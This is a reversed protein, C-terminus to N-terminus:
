SINALKATLYMPSIKRWNNVFNNGYFKMRFLIIIIFTIYVQITICFSEFLISM